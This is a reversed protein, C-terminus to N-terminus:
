SCYYQNPFAKPVSFVYVCLCLRGLATIRMLCISLVLIVCVWDHLFCLLLSFWAVNIWCRVFSSRCNLWVLYGKLAGPNLTEDLWWCSVGVSRWVWGFDDRGILDSLGSELLIIRVRKLCKSMLVYIMCYWLKLLYMCVLESENTIVTCIYVMFQM